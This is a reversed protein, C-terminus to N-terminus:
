FALDVTQVWDGRGSTAVCCRVGQYMILRPPHGPGGSSAEGSTIIIKTPTYKTWDACLFLISVGM